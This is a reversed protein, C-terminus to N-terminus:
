KCESKRWILFKPPFIRLAFVMRHLPTRPVFFSLEEINWKFM